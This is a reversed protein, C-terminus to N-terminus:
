TALENVFRVLTQTTIKNSDKDMRLFIAMTIMLNVTAANWANLYKVFQVQFSVSILVAIEEKSVTSRRPFYDICNKLVNSKLASSLISVSFIFLYILWTLWTWIMGCFPQSLFLILILAKALNVVFQHIQCFYYESHLGITNLCMPKWLFYIFHSLINKFHIMMLSSDGCSSQNLAGLSNAYESQLATYQM